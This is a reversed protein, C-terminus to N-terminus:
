FYDINVAVTSATIATNDALAIAGTVAINIGTGYAKTNVCVHGGGPPVGINQTAATTGLTISGSVQNFLKLYVWTTGQNTVNIAAIQGASNKVTQVAPTAPAVYTFPTWGGSTNAGAFVFLKRDLTMKLVGINGQTVASVGNTNDAVAMGPLGNTSGATFASNDVGAPVGGAAINVKLNGSNDVQGLQLTNGTGNFGVATATSPSAAGVTSSTGGAAAGAKINVLLNGASDVLLSQRQGGALTPPSSLFLGAVKVGFGADATGDAVNGQVPLPNTTNIKLPDGGAPNEMEVINKQHAYGSSDNYVAVNAGATVNQNITVFADAM